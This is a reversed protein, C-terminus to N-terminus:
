TSSTSETAAVTEEVFKTEWQLQPRVVGLHMGWWGPRAKLDEVVEFALLADHEYLRRTRDEVVRLSVTHPGSNLLDGPVSCRSRFLGFPLPEGGWSTEAAPATSFALRNERDFVSLILSLRAGPKRNWYEIVLDIPTWTAVVSVDGEGVAEVAARRVRFSDNGPADDPNEWLQERASSHVTSLYSAVVEDASGSERIRGSDIWLARDCLKQVVSLDHSVFIVTRGENDSSSIKGICKKQFQADGVALVEDIVLIEPELHAAVAFALRTYMGSSYRKVPTDLFSELESFAVIEDFRTTIEARKLGLIAGNLYINERGTLEPHFGTGVELLSGIRGHVEAEGSTPPTVRSLIKLLTSKGAGNRGIIGLREGQQLEFSVDRLAWFEGGPVDNSPATHDSKGACWKAPAMLISDLAESLRRYPLRSGLRFRKSLGDARIALQPM